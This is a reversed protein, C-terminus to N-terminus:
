TASVGKLAFLTTETEEAEETEEIEETTSV